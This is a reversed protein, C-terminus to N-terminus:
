RIQRKNSYELNYMINICAATGLYLASQHSFNCDIQPCSTSIVTDHLSNNTFFNHPSPHARPLNIHNEYVRMGKFTTMFLYFNINIM